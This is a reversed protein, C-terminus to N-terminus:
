EEWTFNYSSSNDIGFDYNEVKQGTTEVKSINDVVSGLLLDKELVVGVETLVVPTMYTKKDKM